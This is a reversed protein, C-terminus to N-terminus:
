RREIVRWLQRWFELNKEFPTVVLRENEQLQALQRRWELFGERELLDLKEATTDADWHPRSFSSPPPLTVYVCVVCDKCRHLGTYMGNTKM